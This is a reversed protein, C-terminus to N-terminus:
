VTDVKLSHDNLMGNIITAADNSAIAGGAGPAVGYQSALDVGQLDITQTPTAGASPSVEITSILGDGSGSVKFHLYDDLSAASHGQLLQSLDLTDNGPAFDTLTDHGSNGQQWLFTDAGGGGTLTNDGMGGILTDNGNGGILTDNGLGGNLLNGLDNGILIDDHASGILNQISVLTDYGAGVTNQQGEIGLDVHVGAQANEFSVTNNGEGGNLLDNGAGAILLDDGKGGYLSDNGTGAILVDDGDGGVVVHDGSATADSRSAPIFHADTATGTATDAPHIATTPGITLALNYNQAASASSANLVQVVYTGDQTAIFSQDAGLTQVSGDAGQVQFTVQAASAATDLTLTEGQKLAVALNDHAQAAASNAALVGAVLLSAAMGGSLATFEARQLTKLSAGLQTGAGNLAITQLTSATFDSTAAPAASQPAALRMFTVVNGAGGGIQLQLQASSTDGDGDRLSYNFTENALQGTALAKFDADNTNLTYTYAGNAGLVLTGYTGTFTGGVVPGGSVRDAGQTDNGLVNGTLTLHSSDATTANSDNVARPVDDTVKVVINSSASAGNRDSAVVALNETLQNAGLGSPHSESANLTYTYTVVGNSANLGTIRLTNGSDTTIPAGYNVLMGNSLVVKGAISLNYLGGTSNVVFSGSQTLAGNNPASGLALNAENLTVDGATSGIGVITATGTPAPGTVNISLQATASDGDADKLTYTFSESGRGNPGLGAYGASGTNLTYTYSGDANLVLSGYKGVLTGANIPGNAIRDAGQIDNSLVNGTLTLHSADASTANSDNVARPV